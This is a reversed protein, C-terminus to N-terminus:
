CGLLGSAKIQQKSGNREVTITADLNIVECSEDNPACVGTVVYDIRAKLGDGTYTESYRDGVKLERDMGAGGTMKLDVDHGDINMRCFEGLDADFVYKDNHSKYDEPLMLSTGCDHFFKTEQIIGIKPASEPTSTLSQEKRAVQPSPTPSPKSALKTGGSCAALTFLIVAFYLLSANRKM